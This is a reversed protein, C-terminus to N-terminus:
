GGLLCARMLFQIKFGLGELYRKLAEPPKMFVDDLKAKLYATEIDLQRLECMNQVALSLIKRITWMKIGPSITEHFDKGEVKSLGKAVFKTHIVFYSKEWFIFSLFFWDHM